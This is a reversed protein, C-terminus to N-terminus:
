VTTRDFPYYKKYLGILDVVQYLDLSRYRHIDSATEPLYLGLGCLNKLDRRHWNLNKYLEGGTRYRAIVSSNM